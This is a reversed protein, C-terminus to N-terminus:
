CAARLSGLLPFSFASFYLLLMGQKVINHSIGVPLHDYPYRSADVVLKVAVEPKWYAIISDVPMRARTAELESLGEGLGLDSLLYRQRFAKPIKDFKILGVGGYLVTGNAISRSSIEDVGEFDASIILVHMYLDTRNSLVTEWLKRSITKNESDEEDEVAKNREAARKAPRINVNVDMSAESINYRLGRKEFLIQDNARLDSVTVAKFKANGSLFCIVNFEKNPGWMADVTPGTIEVGDLPNMLNYINQFAIGLYIALVAPIIWALWSM